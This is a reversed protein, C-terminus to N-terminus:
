IRNEEHISSSARRDSLCLAAYRGRLQSSRPQDTYIEIEAMTKSHKLAVVTCNGLSMLLDVAQYFLFSMNKEGCRRDGDQQKTSM